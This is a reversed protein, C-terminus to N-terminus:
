VGSGSCSVGSQVTDALSVQSLQRYLIKNIRQWTGQVACEGELPCKGFRESCETLAFDGELVTVIEALSIDVPARALQYGGVKGRFSLLLGGNTLLKLLKSVTTVALHVMVAVESASFVRDPEKAMEAMIVTGYDTLKSVRLM